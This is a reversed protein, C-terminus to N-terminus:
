PTVSQPVEPSVTAGPSARPPESPGSTLSVSATAAPLCVCGAQDEPRKTATGIISLVALVAILFIATRAWWQADRLHAVLDAVVIKNQSAHFYTRAALEIELSPGSTVDDPKIGPRSWMQVRQAQVALWAIALCAYLLSAGCVLTVGTVVPSSSSLSAAVITTGTSVIGVFLLLQSARGAVDSRVADQDAYEDEAIKGFRERAAPDMGTVTSRIENLARRADDGTLRKDDPPKWFQILAMLDSWSM